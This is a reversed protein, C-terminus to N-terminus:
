ASQSHILDRGISAAGVRLSTIGILEDGGGDNDLVDGEGDPFLSQSLQHRIEMQGLRIGEVIVEIPADEAPEGKGVELRGFIGTEYYFGHIAKLDVTPFQADLILLHEWFSFPLANLPLLPLTPSLQFLLMATGDEM